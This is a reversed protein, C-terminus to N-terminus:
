FAARSKKCRTGLSGPERDHTFLVAPTYFATRLAYAFLAIMRPAQRVPAVEECRTAKHVFMRVSAQRSLRSLMALTTAVECESQRFRRRHETLKLLQDPM